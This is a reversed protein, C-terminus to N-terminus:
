LSITYLRPVYNFIMINMLYAMSPNNQSRYFATHCLLKHDSFCFREKVSLHIYISMCCKWKGWNHLSSLRKEMTKEKVWGQSVQRCALRIWLRERGEREREKEREYKTVGDICSSRFFCVSTAVSDNQWRCIELLSTNIFFFVFHM